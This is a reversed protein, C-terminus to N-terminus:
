LYSSFKPRNFNLAMRNTQGNLQDKQMPEEKKVGVLMVLCIMDHQHQLLANPRLLKM